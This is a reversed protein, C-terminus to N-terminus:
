PEIEATPEMYVGDAQDVVNVRDLTRNGFLATIRRGRAYNIAPRELIGESYVHYLTRANGVAELRILGRGEDELPGFHATVTDGEIWDEPLLSDVTTTARANGYGRVQTLVQDPADIALSDASIRQQQSYATSRTGTGWVTGAQIRDDRLSFAITDGEASWEASVADADREAQVWRLDGDELRFAIREGRITYSSSDTGQAVARRLLMGHGENLNLAASDAAASFTERDITVAGGAWALGDGKMRVREGRILYPDDGTEDAPRFEVLPRRTAYLETTDRLGPVARYYTLNSGTLTSRSAEDELRVDGYAELREDSPFYRARSADLQATSDRFRVNGVFDLRNLDQYWALSDADVTTSQGACRIRVGGSVFQHYRGRGVSVSRGTGGSRVLEPQCTPSLQAAAQESIFLGLVIPLLVLATLRPM